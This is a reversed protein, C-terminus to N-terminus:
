YIVRKYKEHVIHGQCLFMQNIKYILWEEHFKLDGIPLSRLTVIPKRGFLSTKLVGNAELQNWASIKTKQKVAEEM